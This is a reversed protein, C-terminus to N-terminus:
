LAKILWCPHAALGKVEHIQQTIELITRAYSKLGSGNVREYLNHSKATLQEITEMSKRLYFVEGYLGSNTNLMQEMRKQQESHLVRMQHITVSSYIGVVFYSRVLAIVSIYVLQQSFKYPTDFIFSRALLEIENSLLDILSLFVGLVLSPVEGDEAEDLEHGGCFGHLVADCALSDAHELWAVCRWADHDRGRLFSVAFRYNWYYHRHLYLAFTQALTPM